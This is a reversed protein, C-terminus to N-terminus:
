YRQYSGAGPANRNPLLQDRVSTTYVVGLVIEFDAYMPQGVKYKITECGTAGGDRNRKQDCILDGEYHVEVARGIGACLIISKLLIASIVADLVCSASAVAM